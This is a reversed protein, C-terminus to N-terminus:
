RPPPATERDAAQPNRLPPLPQSREALADRKRRLEAILEEDQQEDVHRAGRLAVLLFLLVAAAAACYALVLVPLDM